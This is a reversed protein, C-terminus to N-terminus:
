IKIVKVIANFANISSTKLKNQLDDLIKRKSAFISYENKRLSIVEEPRNLMYFENNSSYTDIIKKIEKSM